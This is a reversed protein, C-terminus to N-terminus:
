DPRKQGCEISARFIKIFQTRKGSTTRQVQYSVPLEHGLPIELEINTKAGDVHNPTHM